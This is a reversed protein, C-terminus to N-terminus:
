ASRSPSDSDLCHIDRKRAMRAAEDGLVGGVTDEGLAEDSRDSVAADRLGDGVTDGGPLAAAAGEVGITPVGDGLLM